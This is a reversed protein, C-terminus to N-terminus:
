RTEDFPNPEVTEPKGKGQKSVLTCGYVNVGVKPYHDVRLVDGNWGVDPYPVRAGTKLGHMGVVRGSYNM